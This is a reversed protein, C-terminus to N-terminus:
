DGLLWGLVGRRRPAPVPAPPPRLSRGVESKVSGVGAQYVEILDQAVVEKFGAAFGQVEQALEPKEEPNVTNAVDTIQTATDTFVEMTHQQMQGLAQVAHITQLRKAETIYAGLHTDEHVALERETQAHDALRRFGTGADTDTLMKRSATRRVLAKVEDKLTSV